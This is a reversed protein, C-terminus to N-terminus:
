AFVNLVYRRPKYHAMVLADSKDPSRGIREKIDEKPSLYIRGGRVEYRHAILEAFLEADPPIALMAGHDPDLAERLKWYACARLNAFGMSGSRDQENEAAESSVFATVLDSYKDRLREYCAAGYGIADVLIKAGPAHFPVVLAAAKAGSDTVEGQWRGPKGFWWTRRAIVVTADAGGYAVDVGLQDVPPVPPPEPGIEGAALKPWVDPTWRAQAARLWASPIVQWADDKTGIKFDGYLMQSRLPEHLAMLRSYYGTDRLVPNDDLRAPIFTRSRPAVPRGTRPDPIPDGTPFWKLVQEGDVEVYTYWLLKGPPTPYLPHDEDLWPAFAKVIWQGEPTTPPNGTLVLRCRQGPTGSRLWTSVFEVQTSSFQPAEDIVILDRPRGQYKEKDKEHLMYGLDVRRGGGLTMRGANSNLKGAPAHEKLQEIIEDLEGFTKRFLISRRHATIALGVGLGTKGGGAAGGYFLEDAECNYADTQPGPHPAWPKVSPEPEAVDAEMAEEFGALFACAADTM